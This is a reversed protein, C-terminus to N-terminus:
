QLLEWGEKERLDEPLWGLIRLSNFETKWIAWGQTGQENVWAVYLDKKMSPHRYRAFLDDGMEDIELLRM